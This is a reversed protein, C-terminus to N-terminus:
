RAAELGAAIVRWHAVVDGRLMNPRRMAFDEAVLTLVPGWKDLDNAVIRSREEVMQRALEVVEVSSELKNSFSVYNESVEALHPLGSALAAVRKGLDDFQDDPVDPTPTPVDPEPTPEPEPNVGPIVVDFRRQEIGFPEQTALTAVVIVRGTGRILWEHENIKDVAVLRRDDDDAIISSATFSGTLTLYGVNVLRPEADDDLLLVDGVLQASSTGVICKRVVLSDSEVHQTALPLSVVSNTAVSLSQVWSDLMLFQGFVAPVFVLCNVLIWAFRSM